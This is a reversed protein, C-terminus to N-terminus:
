QMQTNAGIWVRGENCLIGDKLQFKPHKAGEVSLETLLRKTPLDAGYGNALETLWAPVCTSLTVLERPLCAIKRSLADIARYEM